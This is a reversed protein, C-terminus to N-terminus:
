VKELSNTANLTEGVVEEVDSDLQEVEGQDDKIDEWGDGEAKKRKEAHFYKTREWLMWALEVVHLHDPINALAQRAEQITLLYSRYNAEDPM